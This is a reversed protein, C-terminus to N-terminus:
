LEKKVVVPAAPMWVDDPNTDETVTRKVPVVQAVATAPAVQPTPLISLRDKGLTLIIHQLEGDTVDRYSGPTLQLAGVVSRECNAPFGDIDRPPEGHSLTVHAM